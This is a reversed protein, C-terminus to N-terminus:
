TSWWLKIFRIESLIRSKWGLQMLVSGNYLGWYQVVNSFNLHVAAANKENHCTTSILYWDFSFLYPTLIYVERNGFANMMWPCELKERLKAQRQQWSYLTDDERSLMSSWICSTWVLRNSALSPGREGLGVSQQCHNLMLVCLQRLGTVVPCWSRMSKKLAKTICLRTRDRSQRQADQLWSAM